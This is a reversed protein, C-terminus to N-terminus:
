AHASRSRYPPVFPRSMGVGFGTCALTPLFSRASGISWSQAWTQDVVNALARPRLPLEDRRDRAPVGGVPHVREHVGECLEGVWGRHERAAARVVVLVEGAASVVRGLPLAAFTLLARLGEGMRM